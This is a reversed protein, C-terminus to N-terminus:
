GPVAEGVEVHLPAPLHIPSDVGTIVGDAFQELRLVRYTGGVVRHRGSAVDIVLLQQTREATWRPVALRRSDESWVMSPSCSEVSRGTSLILTGATPGGMAIEWAEDIRATHRGDPSRLLASAAWPSIPESV